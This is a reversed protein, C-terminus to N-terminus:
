RVQVLSRHCTSTSRDAAKVFSLGGGRASEGRSIGDQWGISGATPSYVRQRSCASVRVCLDVVPPAVKRQGRPSGPLTARALIPHHNLVKEAGEHGCLTRRRPRWRIAAMAGMIDKGAETLRPGAIRGGASM